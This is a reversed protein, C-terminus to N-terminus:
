SASGPFSLEEDGLPAFFGDIKDASLDDLAGPRWDAIDGKDVLTVRVGEYFDHSQLIRAAIRFETKLAEAFDLGGGIQMQKLAIAVSSPSRAYLTALTEEAFVSGRHAADALAAFIRKAGSFAFARSILEREKMIDSPPPAVSDAAIVQAADEGDAFKEILRDFRASPVHATALGLALIDGLNIRGGTMALYTGIKDALRPLFFTAGIDPFFGIATEPMAFTIGDGAVRHAGNVSIGAGGGMVIGDMLAVYPKPYTKIRYCNRYEDRLFARQADHRGDKGLEYVRRIDAGACFARASTSRVAVTRIAPDRAFDDLVAAMATVMDHTLANLAKPRDLTVLGCHGIKTSIIEPASM